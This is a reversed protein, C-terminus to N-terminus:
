QNKIITQFIITKHFKGKNLLAFSEGAAAFVPTMQRAYYYGECSGRRLVLERAKLAEPYFKGKKGQTETALSHM